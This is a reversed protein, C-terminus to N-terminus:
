PLFGFCAFHAKACPDNQRIIPMHGEHCHGCALALLHRVITAHNSHPVTLISLNLLLLAQKGSDAIQSEVLQLMKELFTLDGAALVFTFFSSFIEIEEKV